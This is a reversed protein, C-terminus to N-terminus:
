KLFDNVYTLNNPVCHLGPEIKYEIKKGRKQIEDIWSLNTKTFGYMDNETLLIRLKDIHKLFEDNFYTPSEKNWTGEDYFSAMLGMAAFYMPWVSEVQPLKQIVSEMSSYPSNSLQAPCLAVVRDFVDTNKYFVKLVNHGGMSDGVLFRKTVNKIGLFTELEIFTDSKWNELLGSLHRTNKSTMIWVPGYSISIVQPRGRGDKIWLKQLRVFAKNKIFNLEDALVGHFHYMVEDKREGEGHHWCYKYGNRNGCQANELEKQYFTPENFVYTGIIESEDPANGLVGIAVLLVTIFLHKSKVM